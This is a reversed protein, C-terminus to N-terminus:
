SLSLNCKAGRLQEKTSASFTHPKVRLLPNPVVFRDHVLSITETPALKAVPIWYERRPKSLMSAVEVNVASIPVLFWNNNYKLSFLYARGDERRSRGVDGDYRKHVVLLRTYSEWHVCGIHAHMIAETRDLLLLPSIMFYLWWWLIRRSCRHRHLISAAAHYAWHHSSIPAEVGFFFADIVIMDLISM